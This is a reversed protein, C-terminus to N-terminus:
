PPCPGSTDSGRTPPGTFTLTSDFPGGGTRWSNCNSIGHRSICEWDCGCHCTGGPCLSTEGLASACGDYCADHDRCGMHSGCEIVSGYTCTAHCNGLPDSVCLTRTPQPTCTPPCNPGCAGRCEAGSAIHPNRPRTGPPASPCPPIAGCPPVAPLELTVRRDLGRGTSSFEDTEGQAFFRISSSPIGAATGTLPHELYAKVTMARNCSLTWNHAESAPKSAFGDIRVRPSTGISHWGTLFHDLRGTATADLSASDNAFLVEMFSTPTSTAPTCPMGPPILAPNGARQVARSAAGQQVVHTLEHAILRRGETSEPRYAGAGFVVDRGVTYAVADVSRASEAARGDTHIRVDGFGRGFRPEFFGRTGADLPEGASHLVDHVIPPAVGAGTSRSASRQMEGEEKAACEPCTGGGGGGCSCRQLRSIAPLAPTATRASMSDGRLVADAVQDAEREYADDAPHIPLAPLGAAQARCSPCGGGCPCRQLEPTADVPRPDVPRPVRSAPRTRAAAPPRRQPAHERLATACM